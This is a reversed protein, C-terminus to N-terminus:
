APQMEEVSLEAVFPEGPEFESRVSFLHRGGRGIAGRDEVIVGELRDMGWPFSVRDGVRFETGNPQLTHKTTPM